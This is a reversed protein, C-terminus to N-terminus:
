FLCENQLQSTKTEHNLNFIRKSARTVPHSNTSVVGAFGRKRAMDLANTELAYCLKVQDTPLLNVDFFLSSGFLFPGDKPDALLQRKVPLELSDLLSNAPGVEMKHINDTGSDLVFRYNAGVITRTQRHVVAVSLGTQM